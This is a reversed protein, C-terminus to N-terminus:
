PAAQTSPTLLAASGEEVDQTWDGTIHRGQEQHGRASLVPIGLTIETRDREVSPWKNVTLSCDGEFCYMASHQKQM